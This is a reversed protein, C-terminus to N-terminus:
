SDYCISPPLIPLKEPKFMNKLNLEAEKGLSQLAAHATKQSSCLGIHNLYVSVRKTVGAALFIPSNSLQLANHRCNAAHAVMACTTRAIKVGDALADDDGPLDDDTDDQQNETASEELDEIGEGMVKAFLLKYLFPMAEVLSQNRSLRSSNTFFDKSLHHQHRLLMSQMAKVKQNIRRFRTRGRDLVPSSM